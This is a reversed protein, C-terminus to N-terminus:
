NKKDPDEIAQLKGILDFACFFNLRIDKLLEQVNGMRRLIKGLNLICGFPPSSRGSVFGTILQDMEGCMSTFLKIIRACDDDIEAIIMNIHGLSNENRTKIGEFVAFEKAYGGSSSLDNTLNDLYASVQEFSDLAVSLQKQNKKISFDGELSLGKLVTMYDTFHKRVFYNVFGISLSNVPKAGTWLKEWPRCPFQPFSTQKFYEYLLGKLREKERDARWNKLRKEFSKKMFDSFKELWDEGGGSPQAVYLYNNLVIKAMKEMPVNSAFMEIIAIQSSALARFNKERLANSDIESLNPDEATDQLFLVFAGILREDIHVYNCMVRAFEDIDGRMQSFLCVYTQDQTASFRRIIRDFPIKVFSGLWCLMQAYQYMERQNEMGLSCLGELLTQRLEKISSEELPESFPYQYPDSDTEIEEVIGPMLIKSLEVYFYGPNRDFIKLYPRFFDAAKALLLLKDYFSNFLVKRRYILLDPFHREIDHALESVLVENYIEEVSMESFLSKFWIWFRRFVTEKKLKLAFEQREEEVVSVDKRKKQTLGAEEEQSDPGKIKDLMDKRENSSIGQALRDFTGNNKVNGENNKKNHAM